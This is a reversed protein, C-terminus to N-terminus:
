WVGAKYKVSTGIAENVDKRGRDDPHRGSVKTKPDEEGLHRWGMSFANGTTLLMGLLPPLQIMQVLAGAVTSVTFMALLSFLTGGEITVHIHHHGAFLCYYSLCGFINSIKGM